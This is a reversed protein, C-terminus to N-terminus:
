KYIKYNECKSTMGNEIELNMIAKPFSKHFMSAGEETPNTYVIKSTEKFCPNIKNKITRICTHTHAHKLATVESASPPCWAGPAPAGSPPSAGLLTSPDERLAQAPAAAARQGQALLKMQFPFGLIHNIVEM